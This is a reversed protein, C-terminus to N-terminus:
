ISTMMLRQLTFELKTDNFSLKIFFFCIFGAAGIVVM